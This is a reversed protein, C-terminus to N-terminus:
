QDFVVTLMSVVANIIPDSQFTYTTNGLKDPLPTSNSWCETEDKDPFFNFSM